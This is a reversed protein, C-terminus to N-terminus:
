TTRPREVVRRQGVARHSVAGASQDQQQIVVDVHDIGAPQPFHHRVGNTGTDPRDAGLQQIGVARDLVTADGDTHVCGRAMLVQVPSTVIGAIEALERGHPCDGRHGPGAQQKAKLGIQLGAAQVINRQRHRGVMDIQTEPQDLPAIAVQSCRIGLEIMVLRRRSACVQLPLLRRPELAPSGDHPLAPTVHQVM